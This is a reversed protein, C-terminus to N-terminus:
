ARPDQALRHAVRAGRDRVRVHELTFGPFFGAEAM